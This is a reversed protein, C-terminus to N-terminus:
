FRSNVWSQAVGINHPQNQSDVTEGDTVSTKYAALVKDKKATDLGALTDAAYWSLLLSLSTCFKPPFQGVTVDKTIYLIQAITENTLLTNGEIEWLLEDEPEGMCVMRVYDSPLQFAYTWQFVPPTSLTALTARRRAFGWTHDSLVELVAQDWFIRMVRAAKTDEDESMIIEDGLQLLAVNMIEVKSAM